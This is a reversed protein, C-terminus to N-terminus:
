IGLVQFCCLSIGWFSLGFGGFRFFLSMGLFLCSLVRVGFYLMAFDRVCVLWFGSVRFISYRLEWFFVLWLGLGSICCLSIGLVSM